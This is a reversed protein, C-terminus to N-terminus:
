YLQIGQGQCADLYIEASFTGMSTEFTATLNAAVIPAAAILSAVLTILAMTAHNILPPVCLGLSAASHATSIASIM